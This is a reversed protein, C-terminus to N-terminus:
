VKHSTRGIIQDQLSEPLEVFYAVYGAVRVMLGRYKEPHKKADILVQKDQCNIQVHHGGRALFHDVLNVMDKLKDDNDVNVFYLNHTIGYMKEHDFKTVSNINAIVGCTDSGDTAGAHNSFSTGAKRGDATAWTRFGELMNSMPWANMSFNRNGFYTVLKKSENSVLNNLDKAIQDVYHIDNGYQPVKNIMTARLTEYGEFNADIARVLEAMDIQKDEYVLKKIAALSDAMTALGGSICLGPGIYIKAGGANVPLAREICADTFISQLLLPYRRAEVWEVWSTAIHADHMQQVIQKNVAGMFEDFTKFKTPDGTEVGLLEGSGPQGPTRKRGNFLVCELAIPLNILAGSVHGYQKNYPGEAETCGHVWGIRAEELTYGVDMLMTKITETNIIKPMGIGLANLEAARNKISYSTERPHCLLVIDPQMTRVSEAADLFVYSLDNTADRGDKDVGAICMTQTPKYGPSIRAGAEPWLMVTGTLKIFLLEILEQVQGRTLVGSEIDKKYLPYLDQDLRGLSYVPGTGEFNMLAMVFCIAQMAETFSRASYYPVRATREAIALLEAKRVADKEKNALEIAKQSYRQAFEKIAELEMLLGEYFHHKGMQSPDTNDVAKLAERVQAEYGALGQSFIVAWPPTFHYGYMNLMGICDGWGKGNVRNIVEKPCSNMWAEFISKGKWFKLMENIEVIQEPRVEFPDWKRNPLTDLESRLWGGQVEPFISACRTKCTPSGVLLEGENILPPMSQLAKTFAKATRYADPEGETQSYVETYARARHLCIGPRRRSLLSANLKRVRETSGTEFPQSSAIAKRRELLTDKVTLTM